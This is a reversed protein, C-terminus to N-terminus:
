VTQKPLTRLQINHNSDKLPEVARPPIVFLTKGAENLAVYVICVRDSDGLPRIEETLSAIAAFPVTTDRFWGRLRVGSHTLEFGSRLARVCSYSLLVFLGIGVALPLCDSAITPPISPLAAIGVFLSFIAGFGCGIAVVFRANSPFLLNRNM